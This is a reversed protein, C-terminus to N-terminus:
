IGSYEITVDSYGNVVPNQTSATGNKEFTFTGQTNQAADNSNRDCTEVRVTYTGDALGAPITWTASIPTNHNARTAGTVADQDQAQGGSKQSWALLYQSRTGSQRNITQVLGGAPDEIWTAIVNKPAYQGGVPQSTFTITMTETGDGGGGGGGDAAGVIGGDAGAGGGGGGGNDGGGGNGGGNDLVSGPPEFTCGAALALASGLVLLLPLRKSSFLSGPSTISM